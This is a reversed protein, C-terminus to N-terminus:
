ITAAAASLHAKKEAVVARDAELVLWELYGVFSRNQAKVERNLRLTVAEKEVGGSRTRNTM